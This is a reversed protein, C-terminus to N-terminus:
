LFHFKVILYLCWGKKQWRPKIMQNLMCLRRSLIIINFVIWVIFVVSVRNSSHSHESLTGSTQRVRDGHGLVSEMSSCVKGGDECSLQRRTKSVVLGDINRNKCSSVSDLNRRRFSGNNSSKKYTDVDPTKERSSSTVAFSGQGQGGETKKAGKKYPIKRRCRSRRRRYNDLVQTDQLCKYGPLDSEDEGLVPINSLFSIAAVTRRSVHSNEKDSMNVHDMDAFTPPNNVLNHNQHIFMVKLDTANRVISIVISPPRIIKM